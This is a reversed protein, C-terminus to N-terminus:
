QPKSRDKGSQILLYFLKGRNQELPKGNDERIKNLLHVQEIVQDYLSLVDRSKIYTSKDQKLLSLKDRIHLLCDLIPQEKPDLPAQVAPSDSM